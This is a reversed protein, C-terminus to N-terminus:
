INFLQPLEDISSERLLRGFFGVRPDVKLKQTMAWEASALPNKRLYNALVEEGNVCMTRFKLCHFVKGNFGIRPHKFFIPGDELLRLIAAVMLMLPGLTVLMSVAVTIDLFRKLSGGLPNKPEDATVLDIQNLM